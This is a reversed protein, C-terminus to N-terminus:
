KFKINKNNILTIPGPANGGETWGQRRSKFWRDTRNLEERQMVDNRITSPLNSKM